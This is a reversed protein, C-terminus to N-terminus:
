LGTLVIRGAQIQHIIVLAVATGTVRPFIAVLFDVLAFTRRTEFSRSTNVLNGGKNTNTLRAKSTLKTINVDVITLYENRVKKLPVKINKHTQTQGKLGRRTFM